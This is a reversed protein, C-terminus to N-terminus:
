WPPAPPSTSRSACPPRRPRDPTRRTSACSGTTARTPWSCPAATRASRWAPPSSSRGARAGEPALTDWAYGEPTPTGRVVRAGGPTGPRRESVYLTGAADAALGAPADWTGGDPATVATGTRLNVVRTADAAFATGGPAVAVAAPRLFGSAVDTVAGDAAIRVVRGAGTDAVLVGGAGDAAVALPALLGGTIRTVAGAPDLEVVRGNGTDAVLLRGSADSAVGAPLDYQGPAPGRTAFGTFSSVQGRLGAYTGDPAFLVVRQDFTDAAAIGGDATFAVGRPRTVHGAGRGAIGWAAVVSGDAAFRQVRNNATDAAVVGGGPVDTLAGVARAIAMNGVGPGYGFRGFSGLSALTSADFVDVRHNLNDAVYLRPPVQDDVAVDYPFQLQGPGTGFTGVEARLELTEPDLVVVRHHGDDAVYLRTGAPDLTIGQPAELDLAPRSTLRPPGAPMLSAPDLVFRAVRDNGQDAVYVVPAAGASAHAVAIGSASIGAGTAADGGILNFVSADGFSSLHRGDSASFVQVREHEADLVYVRGARDLALGGVVGLRGPEGRAARAGIRRLFTGAPDFVQVVGSYQDAVHVAGGGPSVAVAQPFRLVGEIPEEGVVSATLPPPAAAAPAAAAAGTLVLWSALCSLLRRSM